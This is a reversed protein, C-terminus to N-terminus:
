GVRVAEGPLPIAVDAFGRARLADALAAAQDPEGHVLRVQATRGALPGLLDLFDNRDAHGSFGDLDIVEAWLNWTRGHFRVTPRPELLRRGLSDPAQYGVLVVSCRPDDLNAKLHRVIRGGDCMASAAVIVCPERREALDRSGDASRVYEVGGDLPDDGERLQRLTRDDLCEPHRRYVDAVDAALPSDIYVPAEPVRGDRMAELLCSVVTQTRGLTFAPILVKGGRALTRRAAGALADTTRALPEHVRGGYTSECILLDAEPVPAPDRLLPMGRRGLDGTFTLRHERGGRRASLAVMASGLLHGADVLRLTVGEGIPRPEDYAVPVFQGLTGSVDEHSLLTQVEPDAGERELVRLVRADAEHLRATDDLMLAVLDRTAPTCYIPGDFGQRVLHPLNGCHDLHAHSLVVADIEAPRFPFAVHRRRPDSRPGMARGCDLLVKQGGVEVLHM